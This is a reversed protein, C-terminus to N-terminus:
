ILCHKNGNLITTALSKGCSSITPHHREADRGKITGTRDLSLTILMFPFLPIIKSIIIMMCILVSYM